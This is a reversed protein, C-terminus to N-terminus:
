SGLQDQLFELTSYHEITKMMEPKAKDIVETIFKGFAPDGKAFGTGIPIPIDPHAICDRADPVIKVQPYKAELALALPSDFAAADIRGNIVELVRTGGGPPQVVSSIKGKPYKKVFEQETGTGTFTGTTVDPKDLDALTKIKTSTKLVAYCTGGETYNAFDIVAMRKPTAFLPALALEFQHAQLGAVIVDWGSPVYEIQVGLTQAIREGLDAAAGVYKGTKPDQGLWPWAVAVGARLKGDKKIQDITPSRGPAPVEQALGSSLALLLISTAAVARTLLRHWPHM